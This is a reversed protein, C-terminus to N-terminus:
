PRPGVILTRDSFVGATSPACGCDGWAYRLEYTHQGPPRQFLVPAPAEGITGCGLGILGGGPPTSMTITPDSLSGFASLLADGLDPSGCVLQDQGEIAVRVGDEYLAVLGDPPDVNNGFEVSAWVEILGSPPVTVTVEPGGLAVYDLTDTTSVEGAETDSVTETADLRANAQTADAQAREATALAEAADGAAAAADALAKNAIALARNATRRTTRNQNVAFRAKNLAQRAKQMAQRAKDLANPTAATGASPQEAGVGSTSAGAAAVGGALALVGIVTFLMTVRSIMCGVKM